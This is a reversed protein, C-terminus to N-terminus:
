LHFLAGLLFGLGAALSGLVLIEVGGLWSNRRALRAKGVGLGFLAVLAAGLSVPFPNGLGPVLLPITPIMGGALFSVGMVGAVTYPNDLSERVLGLEEKLMFDLFREKDATVRRVIIEIEEPEFGKARYIERIEDAEHEPTEEIERRERDIERQFFERQSKASLYAGVSMSVTGAFVEALVALMVLDPDPMTLTVGALFGITTILGDNMGFVVERILKGKPTHWTEDHFHHPHPFPASPLSSTAPNPRSRM